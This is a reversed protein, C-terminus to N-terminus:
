GGAGDFHKWFVREEEILTRTQIEWNARCRPSEGVKRFICEMGIWIASDMRLLQPDGLLYGLRLGDM